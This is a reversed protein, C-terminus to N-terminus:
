IKTDSTAVSAVEIGHYYKQQQYDKRLPFGEWDSPLLIRRLDPHKNFIIGFFDFAEREHWDATRYVSSISDINPQINENGRDITVKIILHHEHPISYLHYIIDFSQEVTSNDLATICSLSDFFTNANNKLFSCVDVIEYAAVVLQPQLGPVEQLIVQDGFKQILLNKIELFTM